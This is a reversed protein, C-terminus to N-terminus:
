IMGDSYGVMKHLTDAWGAINDAKKFKPLIEEVFHFVSYWKEAMVVIQVFFVKEGSDSPMYFSMLAIGTILVCPLILNFVTLIFLIHIKLHLVKVMSFHDGACSLHTPLMLILNRVVLISSLMERWELRWLTGNEMPWMTPWTRPTAVTSWIWKTVMM